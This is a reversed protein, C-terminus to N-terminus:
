LDDRFKERLLAENKERIKHSNDKSRVKIKVRRKTTNHKNYGGGFTTCPNWPPTIPITNRTNKICGLGTFYFGAYSDEDNSRRCLYQATDNINYERMRQPDYIVVDKNLHSYQMIVTHGLGDYGDNCKDIM